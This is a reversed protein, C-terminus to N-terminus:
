RQNREDSNSNEYHLDKKEKPLNIGRDKVRRSATTFASM